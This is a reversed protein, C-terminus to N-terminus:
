AAPKWRMGLHTDGCEVVAFGLRQYLRQADPNHRHVHLLMDRGLAACECQAATILATGLGQGRVQQLLSIDVLLYHEVGRQLYFRGIRECAGEIARELILFDTDAYHSLYHRHQAEFQQRLFAQKAAPPWPVQAMEASRTEVYLKRLFELDSDSAWRLMCGIPM